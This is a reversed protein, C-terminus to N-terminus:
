SFDQRTPGPLLARSLRSLHTCCRHTSSGRHCAALGTLSTNNDREHLQFFHLFSWVKMLAKSDDGTWQKFARGQPFRRLEAFLPVAAVSLTDRM